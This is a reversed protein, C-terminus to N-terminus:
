DGLKIYSISRKGMTTTSTASKTRAEVVVPSNVTIVTNTTVCSPGSSFKTPILISRETDVVQTGNMYISLYVLTSDNSSSNSLNCSAIVLYIGKPLTQTLEPVQVYTGSTTTATRSTSIHRKM